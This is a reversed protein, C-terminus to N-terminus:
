RHKAAPILCLVPVLPRKKPDKAGQSEGKMKDHDIKDIKDIKDNKTMTRVLTPVATPVRPRATGSTPRCAPTRSGPRLTDVAGNFRSSITLCGSAIAAMGMIAATASTVTTSKSDM